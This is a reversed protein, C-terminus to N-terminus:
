QIDECPTIGGINEMLIEEYFLCNPQYKIGDWRCWREKNEVVNCFIQFDMKDIRGGSGTISPSWSYYNFAMVSSAILLLIIVIIVNRLKKNKM